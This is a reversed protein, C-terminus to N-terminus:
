LKNSRDGQQAEFNKFTIYEIISRKAEPSLKSISRLVFVEDIDLNDLLVNGEKDIISVDTPHFFYSPHVNFLECMKSIIRLNPPTSGTEVQQYHQVTVGLKDAVEKQTLKNKKRLEKMREKVTHYLYWEVNELSKVHTNM